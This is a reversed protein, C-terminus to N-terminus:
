TLSTCLAPDLRQRHGERRTHWQLPRLVLGWPDTFWPPEQKRFRVNKRIRRAARHRGRGQKFGIRRNVVHLGTGGARGARQRQRLLQQPMRRAAIEEAPSVVDAHAPVRHLQAAFFEEDEARLSADASGVSRGDSQAVVRTVPLDSQEHLRGGLLQSGMVADRKGTEDGIRAVTSRLSGDAHHIAERVAIIGGLDKASEDTGQRRAPSHETDGRTVFPERGHHHRQRRHVIQRTYEDGAADREWGAIALVRGLDLGDTGAKGVALNRELFGGFKAAASRWDRHRSDIGPYRRSTALRRHLVPGIAPANRRPEM